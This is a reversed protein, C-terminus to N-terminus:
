SFVLIIPHFFSLSYRPGLSTFSVQVSTASLNGPKIVICYSATYYGCPCLTFSDKKQYWSM